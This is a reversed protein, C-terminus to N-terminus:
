AAFERRMAAPLRAFYRQYDSLRISRQGVEVLVADEEQQTLVQEVVAVEEGGCGALSGSSMVGALLLAYGKVRAM